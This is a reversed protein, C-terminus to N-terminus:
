GQGRVEGGGVLWLRRPVQGAKQLLVPRRGNGQEGRGGRLCPARAWRGPACQQTTKVAGM